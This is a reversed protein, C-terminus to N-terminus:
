SRRRKIARTLTEDLAAKAKAYEEQSIDGQKHEVELQFLEEKLAELLLGSRAAAPAVAPAIEAALSEPAVAHSRSKVYFAGGALLVAFGGLLYWRYKELPDPADIPPGLGGGPRADRGGAAAPAAQGGSGENNEESSALTGTGAIKFALSQGVKTNSAVQVLADSQNPDPMSKFGTDSASTFQMTKPLMVVFHQTAYQSGPNISAEGSYPLHFVVQFQTEGPRLPFIFAYRNKQAQPIPASTIPQGGATQALANDIQAGEPLDFEFNQDNMQTRPPDSANNVAFVRIGQLENGPPAQFRMVDATVSIADLKKAVDYVTVEVSPVNPPAMRHYTVGQHIARILHPDGSDALKFSFSGKADSKTRAEEEMGQALRILVVDDGAAPKNTTGNKLTGSLTQSSAITSALLILSAAVIGQGVFRPGVFRPGVFRPSLKL